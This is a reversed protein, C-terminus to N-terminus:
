KCYLMVCFCLSIVRREGEETETHRKMKMGLLEDVSVKCIESLTRLNNQSPLSEGKEYRCIQSVSVGLMDALQQQTYRLRERNMKINEAFAPIM